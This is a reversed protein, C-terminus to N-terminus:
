PAKHATLNIKVTVDLPVGTVNEDGNGIHFDQRHLTTEANMKAQDGTTTLTFPLTVSQSVGKVTLVGEARYKDGGLSTFGSTVYTAKPFKVTDWWEAEPFHQDYTDNGSLISASEITIVAKSAGLAKPDFAIQADWRKATMEVPVGGYGSEFTLKSSSRDMVWSPPAAALSVAPIVASLILALALKSTTM